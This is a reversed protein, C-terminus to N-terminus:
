ISQSSNKDARSDLDSEVDRLAQKMYANYACVCVFVTFQDHLRSAQIHTCMPVHMHTYSSARSSVSIPSRSFPHVISRAPGARTRNRLSLITCCVLFSVSVFFCVFRNALMAGLLSCLARMGFVKQLLSKTILNHDHLIADPKFSSEPNALPGLSVSAFGNSGSQQSPTVCRADTRQHACGIRDGDSVGRSSCLFIHPAASKQHIKIDFSNGSRANAYDKEDLENVLLV